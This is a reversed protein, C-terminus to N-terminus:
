VNWVNFSSRAVAPKRALPVVNAGRGMNSAESIVGQRGRHGLCLYQLADHVHSYENKAVALKDTQGATAQKTLKYHAAFGGILRRCRPDILLRPTRADIPRNLYFRVAEQRLGPENSPAPEINISLARAVTEVWALEGAVKDAGYYSSPDSFAERVPVGEFQALLVEYVMESFRSPGTGPDACVERLVRLQGDPMFQGIAAAPSGGADFGLALPLERVVRLPEEAVHFSSSFDAEYIPKGDQAYGIEGYVYRRADNATMTRLDQEYSSRPKGKRNEAKSSLGSPQRFLKYLPWQEAEEILMTNVWNDPDPPNCDGFLLRPLLVEGDDLPMGCRRMVEVYPRMVRDLESPAITAVAPYRGTRSFMLGPVRKALMDCENLWVFTSEFGKAFQEPNADGIAAFHMTFEVPVLRHDRITGFKLKHVTPRDIGGSYEVTWPHKEPFLMENHWSELATRALDRYTDRLVTCKVRIVGDRCVPSWSAALYPGKYGSGITKGSGGPGMIISVPHTSEIYTAAIPGPVEYSQFVTQGAM